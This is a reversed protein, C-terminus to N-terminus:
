HIIITKNQDCYVSTVPTPVTKTPKTLSFWKEVFTNISANCTADVIVVLM